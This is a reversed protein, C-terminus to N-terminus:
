LEYFYNEENLGSTKQLAGLYEPYGHQFIRLNTICLHLISFCEVQALFIGFIIEIDNTPLLKDTALAHVKQEGRTNENISEKRWIENM